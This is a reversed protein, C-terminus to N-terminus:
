PKEQSPPAPLPMWHTPQYDDELSEQTISNRVYSWWTLSKQEYWAIHVIWASAHDYGVLVDTGDQPATEIPMWQSAVPASPAAGLESEVESETPAGCHPFAILHSQTYHRLTRLLEDSVLTHGAPCQPIGSFATTIIDTARDQNFQSSMCTCANIFIKLAAHRAREAVSAALPRRNWDVIADDQSRFTNSSETGCKKNSCRVSYIVRPSPSTYTGTVINNVGLMIKKGYITATAGCFPCSLIEPLPNQETM